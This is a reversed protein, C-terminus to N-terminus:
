SRCIVGSGNVDLGWEAVPRHTNGSPTLPNLNPWHPDTLGTGGMTIDVYYGCNGWFTIWNGPSTVWDGPSGQAITYTLQRNTVNIDIWAYIHADVTLLPLYTGVYGIWEWDTNYDWIEKWNIPDGSWVADQLAGTYLDPPPDAFAFSGAMGVVLLAVTIKRLM